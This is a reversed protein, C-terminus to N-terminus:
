QLYASGKKSSKSNIEISNLILDKLSIQSNELELVESKKDDTFNELDPVDNLNSVAIQM